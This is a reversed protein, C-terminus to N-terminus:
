GVCSWIDFTCDTKNLMGGDQRHDGPLDKYKFEVYELNSSCPMRGM